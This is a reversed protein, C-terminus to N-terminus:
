PAARPATDGTTAVTLQVTRFLQESGEPTTSDRRQNAYRRLQQIAKHADGQGAKLKKCEIVVLPIGNVFLVLDAILKKPKGEDDRAGPITMPFQSVALFDNSEPTEWDIFRVKQARGGNWGEVGPVDVGEILADTAAENAAVLGGGPSGGKSLAAIATAARADDLWAAGSPRRNLQDLRRRLIGTLLASDTGQRVYPEEGPEQLEASQLGVVHRWGMTPHTLQAILPAEVYKYEPGSM